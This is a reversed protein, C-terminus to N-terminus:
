LEYKHGGMMKAKNNLKAIIKKVQYLKFCYSSTLIYVHGNPRSIKRGVRGVIQLLSTVTYNSHEAGLIIVDIDAFTVGRELILTTVLGQLQGERLALVKNLRETDQSHVAAITLHPFVNLIALLLQNADAITPVFILFPLKSTILKVLCKKLAKSLNAKVLSTRWNFDLKIECEPLLFNHFRLPLYSIHKVHKLMSNTPTASLWIQRGEKKIANNIAHWLMQNGVLPYADIEDIIIMDFANKFKLLQYTTCIVIQAYEFGDKIQGHMASITIHKFVATFRPVLENIVDIRPATIAIRKQEKLAQWVIPFLIETKGAGTVAWVLHKESHSLIEDVVRQQAQTLKGQWDWEEPIKFNNPEKITWFEDYERIRGLKQCTGCYQEAKDLTYQVNIKQGCRQCQQNKITPLKDVIHIFKQQEAKTLHSKVILRGYFQAREMKVGLKCCKLIMTITLIRLDYYM